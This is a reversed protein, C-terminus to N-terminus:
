AIKKEFFLNDNRGEFKMKKNKEAEKPSIRRYFITLV